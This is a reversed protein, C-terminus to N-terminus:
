ISLCINGPILTSHFPYMIIIGDEYTTCAHKIEPGSTELHQEAESKDFLGVPGGDGKVFKNLQEYLQIDNVM